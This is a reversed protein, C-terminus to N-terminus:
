WQCQVRIFDQRSDQAVKSAVGKGGLRFATDINEILSESTFVNPNKKVKDAFVSLLPKYQIVDNISWKDFYKVTNDMLSRFYYDTILPMKVNGCRLGCIELEVSKWDPKKQWEAKIQEYESDALMDFGDRSHYTQGKYKIDYEM